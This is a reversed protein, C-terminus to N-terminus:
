GAKRKPSSLNDKVFGSILQVWHHDLDTMLMIDTDEAYLKLLLDACKRRVKCLVDYAAGSAQGKVELKHQLDATLYILKEIEKAHSVFVPRTGHYPTM